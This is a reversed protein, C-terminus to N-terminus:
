PRALIAKLGRELLDPTMPRNYVEVVVGATDVFVTRPVGVLGYRRRVKGRTDLLVPFPM